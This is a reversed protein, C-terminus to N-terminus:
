RIQVGKYDRVNQERVLPDEEYLAAFIGHIRAVRPGLNKILLDRMWPTNPDMFQSMEELLMEMATTVGKLSESVPKASVKDNHGSQRLFSEIRSLTQAFREFQVRLEQIEERTVQRVALTVDPQVLQVAFAKMLTQFLEAVTAGAFDGPTVVTPVQLAPPKPLPATLTTKGSGANELQDRIELVKRGMPGSRWRQWEDESWARIKKRPEESGPVKYYRPPIRRPDFVGELSEGTLLYVAAYYHRNDGELVPKGNTIARWLHDTADPYFLRALDIAHTVRFTRKLVSKRDDFWTMFRASEEEPNWHQQQRNAPM